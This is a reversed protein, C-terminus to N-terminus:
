KQFIFYFLPSLLTLKSIETKFFPSKIWFKIKGGFTTKLFYSFQQLLINNSDETLYIYIIYSFVQVHLVEEFLFISFM